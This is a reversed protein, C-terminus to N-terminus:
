GGPARDEVKCREVLRDYEAELRAYSRDRLDFIRTFAALRLWPPVGLDPPVDTDLKEPKGRCASEVTGRIEAMHRALCAELVNGAREREGRLERVFDDLVGARREDAGAGFVACLEVPDPAEGCGLGAIAVALLFTRM